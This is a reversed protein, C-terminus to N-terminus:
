GAVIQLPIQIVMTVSTTSLSSFLCKNQTLIFYERSLSVGETIGYVHLAEYRWCAKRSISSKNRYMAHGCASRWQGWILVSTGNLFVCPPFFVNSVFTITPFTIEKLQIDVGMLWFSLKFLKTTYLECCSCLTQAMRCKSLVEM